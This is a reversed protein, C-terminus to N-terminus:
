RGHDARAGRATLGTITVGEVSLSGPRHAREAYLQVNGAGALGVLGGPATAAPIGAPANYSQASAATTLALGLIAGAAIRSIM